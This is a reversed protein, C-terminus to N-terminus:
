RCKRKRRPRQNQIKYLKIMAIHNPGLLLKLREAGPKSLYYGPIPYHQMSHDSKLFKWFAVPTNLGFPKNWRDYALLLSAEDIFISSM